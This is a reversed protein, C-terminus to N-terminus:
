SRARPPIAARATRGRAAKRVAAQPRRGGADDLVRVIEHGILEERDLLADRMALVLRRNANLLRKV